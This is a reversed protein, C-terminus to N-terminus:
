RVGASRHGGVPGKRVGDCEAGDVPASDGSRERADPDIATVVMRCKEWWKVSVWM